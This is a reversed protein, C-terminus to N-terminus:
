RMHQVFAFNTNDSRLNDISVDDPVIKYKWLVYCFSLQDRKVYDRILEWWDNMVSVIKEDKHKRYLLNNETFGYKEPFNDSRIKKLLADIKEKDEPYTRYAWDFHQYLCKGGFHKPVLLTDNRHAIYDFIYPTLININSDVYISEEYEPLVRHPLIKYYRNKKTNDLDLDTDIARIQWAGVKKKKILKPNDTFCVYDWGPALYAHVILEDYDGVLCTYVVKKAKHRKLSKKHEKLMKKSCEYPNKYFAYYCHYRGFKLYHLLPCITANKHLSLYWNGDFIPSPNLGIKWGYEIYHELPDMNYISLAPYQKRYFEEDFLKLRLMESKYADISVEKRNFLNRSLEHARNAEIYTDYLVKLMERDRMLAHTRNAEAYTDYLVKLLQNNSCEKEKKKVKYGFLKIGMFYFKRKNEKKRKEFLKM